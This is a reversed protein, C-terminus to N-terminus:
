LSELKGMSDEFIKINKEWWIIWIFSYMDFKELEKARKSRGFDNFSICNKRYRRPYGMDEISNQFTTGESTM